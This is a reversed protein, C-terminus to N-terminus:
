NNKQSSKIKNKLEIMKLEREVMLNNLRSLESLKEELERTREAVKSEMNKSHKELELELRKRETVDEVLLLLRKVKGSDEQLPVGYYHCYSESHVQCTDRIETEFFQGQLGKRILEDIDNEECSLLDFISAGTLDKHNRNGLLEAMKPNFSEIIGKLNVACIGIPANEVISEFEKAHRVTRANQRRFIIYLIFGIVIASISIFLATWTQINKALQEFHDQYLYLEVVGMVKGQTDLLPTYVELLRTGGSSHESQNIERGVQRYKDEMSIFNRVLEGKLAADVGREEIRKGVYDGNESSFILVGHADFINLSEVERTYTVDALFDNFHRKSELDQWNVLQDEFLLHNRAHIRAHEISLKTEHEFVTERFMTIFFWWLGVGLM